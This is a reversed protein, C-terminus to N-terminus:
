KNSIYLGHVDRWVDKNRRLCAYLMHSDKSDKFYDTIQINIRSNSLIITVTGGVMDKDDESILGTVWMESEFVPFPRCSDDGNIFLGGHFYENFNEEGKLSLVGYPVDKTMTNINIFTSYFPTGREITYRVYQAINTPVPDPYGVIRQCTPTSLNVGSEGNSLIVEMYDMTVMFKENAEELCRITKDPSIGVAGVLSAIEEGNAANLSYSVTEGERQIQPIGEKTVKKTKVVKTGNTKTGRNGEGQNSGKRAAIKEVDEMIETGALESALAHAQAPGCVALAILTTIGLLAKM